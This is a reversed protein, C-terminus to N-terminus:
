TAGGRRLFLFLAPIAVIGGTATVIAINVLPDGSAKVLANWSAHLLAALLVLGITLGEPSSEAIM